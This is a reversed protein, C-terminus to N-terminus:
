LLFMFYLLWDVEALDDVFDKQPVVFVALDIPLLQSHGDVVVQHDIRFLFSIKMNDPLGYFFSCYKQVSLPM